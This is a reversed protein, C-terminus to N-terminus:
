RSFNARRKPHSRRRKRLRIVTVAAVSRPFRWQKSKTKLRSSEHIGTAIQWHERKTTNGVAGFPVSQIFSLGLLCIIAAHLKLKAQAGGASRAAKPLCNRAQPATFQAM